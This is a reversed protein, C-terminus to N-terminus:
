AMIKAVRVKQPWNLLIVVVAAGVVIVEAVVEENKRWRPNL